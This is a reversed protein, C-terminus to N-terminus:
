LDIGREPVKPEKAAADHDREPTVSQHPREDRRWWGHETTPQAQEGPLSWGLREGFSQEGPSNLHITTARPTVAKGYWGEELVKHRVDAVAAAFGKLFADIM